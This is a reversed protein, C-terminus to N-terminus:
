RPQGREHALHLFDEVLAQLCRRGREAAVTLDEGAGPTEALEFYYKIKPETGSPRLTVRAAGGLQLGVVNASPLELPRSGGAGRAEQAQYDMVLTVEHSGVQRPPRQRFGDMVRSMIAAGEAGPFRFSRQASLYLGHQRQIQELYDLV